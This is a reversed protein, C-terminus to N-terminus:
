AVLLVTNYFLNAYLLTSCVASYLITLVCFCFFFYNKSLMKCLLLLCLKFHENQGGQNLINDNGDKFRLAKATLPSNM